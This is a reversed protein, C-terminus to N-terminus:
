KNLASLATQIAAYREMITKVNQLAEIAQNIAQLDSGAASGAIRTLRTVGKARVARAGEPPKGSGLRLIVSRGDKRAVMLLGKTQLATITSRVSTEPVKPTHVRVREFIDQIGLEKEPDKKFCNLIQDKISIDGKPARGRKGPTKAKAASKSKAKSAMNGVEKPAEVPKPTTEGSSKQQFLTELTPEETMEKM